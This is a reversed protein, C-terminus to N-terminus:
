GNPAPYLYSAVALETVHRFGKQGGTSIGGNSASESCCTMSLHTLTNLNFIM